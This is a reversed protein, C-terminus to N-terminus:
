SEKQIEAVQKELENRMRQLDQTEYCFHGSEPLVSVAICRYQRLDNLARDSVLEDWKSHFAVAPVNLQPLLKRTRRIEVLLEAFRGIWPIYRWLYPSMAVGCDNKMEMATKDTPKVLGLANKMAAAITRPPLQIRMPVNLLFLGAIRDPYEVAARIAFLTGMSHGIILVRRHCELLERLRESVQTKWTKMSAAGFERVGKGHGELLLSCVSWEVPILPLLDKFHQPTGVIGHIMLVATDSGGVIRVYERVEM